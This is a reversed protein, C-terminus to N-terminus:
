TTERQRRHERLRQAMALQQEWAETRAKWGTRKKVLVRGCVHTYGVGNAIAADRLDSRSERHGVAIATEPSGPSDYAHAICWVLAQRSSLVFQEVVPAVDPHTYLRWGGAVNRLVLGSGRAELDAALRDCRGEVTRRDLDLAQALVSATLPEDSVFFLAELARTDHLQAEDTM